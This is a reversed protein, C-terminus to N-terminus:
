PLLGQAQLLRARALRLAAQSREFDADAASAAALARLLEPLGYEGADFARQILGARTRALASRERDASLREQAAARADGALKLATEVQARTATLQREALLVAGAASAELPRNRVDNGLPIRVGVGVSNRRPDAGGAEQRFSLLLEPPDRRDAAVAARLRQAYELQREALQLQPHQEISASATAPVAEEIREEALPPMAILAAWAQEAERLRLRAEGADARAGLAEARAALADSRALEGAGVRRDVDAALRELADHRAQAQRLDARAVVIRWALERVRGALQWRSSAIAAQAQATEADAAAVRAARLAPRWLPLAAAVESERAAGRGFDALREDRHSLEIAPAAALLGAAASRSADARLAQGQAEAAEQARQWAADVADRLSPGPSADQAGAALVALTLPAARLKRAVLALLSSVTNRM